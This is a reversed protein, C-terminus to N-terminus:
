LSFHTFRLLPGFRVTADLGGIEGVKKRDSASGCSRSLLKVSHAGALGALRQQSKPERGLGQTVIVIM